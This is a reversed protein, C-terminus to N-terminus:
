GPVEGRERRQGLDHERGLRHASAASLALRLECGPRVRNDHEQIARGARRGPVFRIVRSEVRDTGRKGCRPEICSDLDCLAVYKAAEGPSRDRVTRTEDDGSAAVAGHARDSIREDPVIGREPSRGSPVSL